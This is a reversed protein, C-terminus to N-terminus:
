ASPTSTPNIRYWISLSSLFSFRNRMSWFNAVKDEFLGRKIPFIRHIVQLTSEVSLVWPFFCIAFTVIVTAGLKAIDFAITHLRKSQLCRGLLYFFMAPSYYLAIQKFCLSCCFLASGLMDDSTIQSGSKSRRKKEEGSVLFAISWATLGLGLLLCVRKSSSSHKYLSRAVSFMGTYFVLLDFLLVITRMRIKSAATEYGRSKDVHSRQRQNRQVLRSGSSAAHDGDLTLRQAEYDGYMKTGDERVRGDKNGQGSYPFM